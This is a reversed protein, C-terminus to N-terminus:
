ASYSAVLAFMAALILSIVCMVILAIGFVLYLKKKEKKYLFWSIVDAFLFILFVWFM